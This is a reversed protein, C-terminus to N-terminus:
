RVVSSSLVRVGIDRGCSREFNAEALLARLDVSGIRQDIFRQVLAAPASVKAILEGQVLAGDYHESRGDSEIIVRGASTTRTTITM